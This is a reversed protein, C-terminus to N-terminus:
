GAQPPTVMWTALYDPNEIVDGSGKMRYTGPEAPQLASTQPPMWYIEGLGAGRLELAIGRQRDAEIIVGHKQELREGGSSQWTLGVIVYKGPLRVALREDWFPPKLGFAKRIFAGVM